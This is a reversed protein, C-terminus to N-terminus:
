QQKANRVIVLTRKPGKVVTAHQGAKIDTLKGPKRKIRVVANSPLDLTITKYTAKNTGERLTLSNGEVKEVFGRDVTVNVFKGDKTPVVLDAHVAGRLRRFQGRRQGNPGAQKSKATAAASTSPSSAADGVYAGAAGLAACAGVVGGVKAIKHGTM